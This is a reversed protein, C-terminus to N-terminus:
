QKKPTNIEANLRVTITPPTGPPVFIDVWQDLVLGRIGAEEYTPV